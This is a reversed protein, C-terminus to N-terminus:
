VINTMAYSILLVFEIVLTLQYIWKKMFISSRYSTLKVLVEYKECNSHMLDMQYNVISLFPIMISQCSVDM